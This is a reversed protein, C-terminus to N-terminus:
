FALVAAMEPSDILGTSEGAGAANEWSAYASSAQSAGGVLSSFANLSAGVMAQNAKSKAIAAEDRFQKAQVKFGFAERAANSKLTMVDLMGLARQSTQVDKASGSNVDVGGAAQRTKIAGAIAKNRMGLQEEQGEAAAMTLTANREAIEANQRAINKQANAAGQESVGSFIDGVATVLDGM